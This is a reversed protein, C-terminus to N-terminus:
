RRDVVWVKSLDQKLFVGEGKCKVMLSHTQLLHFHGVYSHNVEAVIPFM